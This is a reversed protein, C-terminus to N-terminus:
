SLGGDGPSPTGVREIPRRQEARIIALAALGLDFGCPGSEMPRYEQPRKRGPRGEEPRRSLVPRVWPEPVAMLGYNASRFAGTFTGNTDTNTSRM